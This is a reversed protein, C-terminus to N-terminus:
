GKDKNNIMSLIVWPRQATHKHQTSCLSGRKGWVGTLTIHTCVYCQVRRFVATKPSEVGTLNFASLDRWLIFIGGTNVFVQM